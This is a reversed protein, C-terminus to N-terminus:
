RLRSGGTPTLRFVDTRLVRPGLAPTEFKLMREDDPSERAVVAVIVNERERVPLVPFDNVADLTVLLAILRDSAFARSVASIAVASAPAELHLTVVDCHGQPTVPSPRFPSFSQGPVPALLLVNESDVM